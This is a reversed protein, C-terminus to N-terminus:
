RQHLRRPQGETTKEWRVKGARDVEVLRKGSVSVVVTNGNRLRLSQQAGPV